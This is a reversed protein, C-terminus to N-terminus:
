GARGSPVQSGHFRGHDDGRVPAARAERLEQRAQGGLAAAAEELHDDAVVARGVVCALDRAGELAPEGQHVPVLRIEAEAGALGAVHPDAVRAAVDDDEDVVVHEDRVVEHM